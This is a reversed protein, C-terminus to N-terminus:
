IIDCSIDTESGKTQPFQSPLPFALLVSVSLASGSIVMQIAPNPILKFLRFYASAM